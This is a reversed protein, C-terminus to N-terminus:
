ARRKYCRVEWGDRRATVFCDYGAAHQEDFYRHMAGRDSFRRRSDATERWPALGIAAAARRLRRLLTAGKM